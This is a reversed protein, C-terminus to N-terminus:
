KQTTPRECFAIRAIGNNNSSIPGAAQSYITFLIDYGGKSKPSINFKLISIKKYM